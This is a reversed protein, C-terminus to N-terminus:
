ILVMITNPKGDLCRVGAFSCYGNVSIFFCDELFTMNENCQVHFIEGSGSGYGSVPEADTLLAIVKLALGSIIAVSECDLPLGLQSCVIRANIRNWFDDCIKGWKRNRCIEVRGDAASRANALRVEGAERCQQATM